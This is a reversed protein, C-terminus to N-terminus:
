EGMKKLLESKYTEKYRLVRDSLGIGEKYISEVIEDISCGKVYCAEIFGYVSALGLQYLEGQQKNLEEVIEDAIKQSKLKNDSITSQEMSKLKDKIRNVNSNDKITKNKHEEFKM